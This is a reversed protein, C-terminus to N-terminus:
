STLSLEGKCAQKKGNAPCQDQNKNITKKRRKEETKRNKKFVSYAVFHLVSHTRNLDIFVAHIYSSYTRISSYAQAGTMHTLEVHLTSLCAQLGTAFSVGAVFAATSSSRRCCCRSSTGAGGSHRADM